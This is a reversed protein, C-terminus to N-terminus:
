SKTGKQQTRADSKGKGEAKGKPSAAAVQAWTGKGQNDAQNAQDAPDQEWRDPVGYPHTMRRGEENNLAPFDVNPFDIWQHTFRSTPYWRAYGETDPPNTYPNYERHYRWKGPAFFYYTDTLNPSYWLGHHEATRIEEAQNHVDEYLGQGKM